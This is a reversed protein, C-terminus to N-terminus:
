MVVKVVGYNYFWRWWKFVVIVVLSYEGGGTVVGGGGGVDCKDDEEEISEFQLPPWHLDCRFVGVTLEMLLLLMSTGSYLCALSMLFGRM